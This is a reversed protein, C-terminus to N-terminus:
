HTRSETLKRPLGRGQHESTKDRERRRRGGLGALPVLEPRALGALVRAARLPEVLEIAFHHRTRLPQKAGRLDNQDDIRTLLVVRLLLDFLEASPDATLELEDVAHGNLERVADDLLDGLARFYQANVEIAVNRLVVIAGGNRDTRARRLLLPAVVAGADANGDDVRADGVPVVVERVLAAVVLHSHDVPLAHRGEDVEHVIAQLRVVVVAVARVDRAGDGAVAIIGAARVGPDRRRRVEDAQLHEVLVTAADDAVDDGREPPRDVFRTVCLM